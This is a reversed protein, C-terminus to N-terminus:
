KVNVVFPLMVSVNGDSVDSTRPNGLSALTEPLYRAAVYRVGLTLASTIQVSGDKPASLAQNLPRPRSLDLPVFTGQDRDVLGIQILVNQAPRNTATNRLLGSQGVVAAMDSDFVLQPTTIPDSLGCDRASRVFELRLLTIPGLLNDMLNTTLLGPLGVVRSALGNGLPSIQCTSNLVQGRVILVADPTLLANTSQAHAASMLCIACGVGLAAAVAWNPKRDSM